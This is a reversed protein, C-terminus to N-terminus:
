KCGISTTNASGLKTSRPLEGTKTGLAQRANPDYIVIPTQLRLWLFKTTLSLLDKRKYAERLQKRVTDVALVLKAGKFERPDPKGIIQLATALRHGEKDHELRLNRAVRYVAAAKVLAARQMEPDSSKLAACYHRDYKLWWNLYYLAAYDFTIAPM